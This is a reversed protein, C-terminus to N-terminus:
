TSSDARCRHELVLASNSFSDFSHDPGDGCSQNAETTAPKLVHGRYSTRSCSAERLAISKSEHWNDNPGSRHGQTNDRWERLAQHSTHHVYVGFGYVDQSRDGVIGHCPM